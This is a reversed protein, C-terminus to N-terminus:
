RSAPSATVVYRDNVHESECFKSSMWIFGNSGWNNGWSNLVLLDVSENENTRYGVVSLMHRGRFMGDVKDYTGSGGWNEFNDYVDIAIGPIHGETLAQMLDASDVSARYYGTVLADAGAVDADFPPPENIKETEFSMRKESIIGHRAAKICMTRPSCGEDILPQGPSDGYRAIAYLWKRSPRQVPSDSIMGGLYIATSFWQAVCSNTLGQDLVTDLYGSHDVSRPMGVVNRRAGILDCISHRRDDYAAEKSSVPRAGYHTM